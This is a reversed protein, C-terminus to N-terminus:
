LFGGFGRVGFKMTKESFGDKKMGVM